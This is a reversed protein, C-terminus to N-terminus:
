YGGEMGREREPDIERTHARTISPVTQDTAVPQRASSGTSSRVQGMGIIARSPAM